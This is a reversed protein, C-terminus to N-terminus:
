TISQWFRCIISYYEQRVSRASASGTYSLRTTGENANARSSAVSRQCLRRKRLPPSHIHHTIRIENLSTQQDHLSQAEDSVDVEVYFLLLRWLNSWKVTVKKLYSGLPERRGAAGGRIKMIGAKWRKDIGWVPSKNKIPSRASM